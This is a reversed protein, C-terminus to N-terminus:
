KKKTGLWDPWSIWGKGKYFTDPNSPINIPREESVSWKRWDKQKTLGLKQVYTQADEYTMIRGRIRHVGKYGLWDPWSIWGKNKYTRQPNTPIDVPILNFKWHYFWDDKKEFSLSHAFRKAEDFNKYSRNFNATNGTGLWDSWDVWGKNKYTSSPGAPINLARKDSSAWKNWESQNQFGLQHIEKKAKEYTLFERGWTSVTETGLWDSWDIWGKNKYFVNPSYPINIPRSDSAAWNEWNRASTLGLTRAFERSIEFSGFSQSKELPSVSFTGLWDGWNVWQSYVTNPNQPIDQPM